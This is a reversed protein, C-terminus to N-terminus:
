SDVPIRVTDGFFGEAGVWEPTLWLVPINPETPAPGALDTAYILAVPPEDQEDLWDFVPQFRTGGGGRAHLTIEGDDPTFTETGQIRTNCYVVEVSSPRAELMIATLESAFQDLLRQDISGSTDVAVVLRGVNEKALSPLYLGAAIHRRNPRSWSYDSVVTNEVFRRLITKWDLQSDRTEKIARYADAALSGAKRTVSAAQEAAVQWDTASMQQEPQTGPQGGSAGDGPTGDGPQDGPAPVFDTQPAKGDQDSKGGGKEKEEEEKKQLLAYVQEAAMGAYQQDLLADVPLALDSGKILLNVVYDAARNWRGLDRGATRYPHQLACHTVEHAVVGMLQDDPLKAVWAENYELKTGDTRMTEQADNQVVKLRLALVGYFAQDLLLNTRARTIRQAQTIDTM